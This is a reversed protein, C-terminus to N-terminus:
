YVNDLLFLSPSPAYLDSNRWVFTNKSTPRFEIVHIVGNHSAPVGVDGEERKQYSSFGFSYRTGLSFLSSLPSLLSFISPLFFCSSILSQMLRKSADGTEWSKPRFIFCGEAKHFRARILSKIWSHLKMLFFCVILLPKLCVLVDGVLFKLRRKTFRINWCLILNGRRRFLM